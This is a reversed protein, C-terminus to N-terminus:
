SSVSAQSSSDEFTNLSLSLNPSRRCENTGSFKNSLDQYDTEPSENPLNMRDRLQRSCSSLHYPTTIHPVLSSVGGKGM